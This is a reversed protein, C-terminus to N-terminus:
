PQKTLFKDKLAQSLIEVTRAQTNYIPIMEQPKVKSINARITDEYDDILAIVEERGEQKAKELEVSIFSKMEDYEPTEKFISGFSKIWQKNFREQLTTM